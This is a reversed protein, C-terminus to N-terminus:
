RKPRSPWSGITKMALRDDAELVDVGEILTLWPLL